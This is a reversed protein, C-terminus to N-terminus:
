IAAFIDTVAIGQGPILSLPINEGEKYRRVTDGTSVRVVKRTPYVVWFEKCGNALCQAEREDLEAATNSPSEVEIVMEPAGRLNDDPDIGNFRDLSVVAVDAAWLNYEPTTRFPLEILVHGYSGALPRLLDFLHHQLRIHRHKPHSMEIVEGNLLDYVKDEPLRLQQFEEVTMLRTPTLM